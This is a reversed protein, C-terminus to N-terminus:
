WLTVVVGFVDRLEQMTETVLVVDLMSVMRSNSPLVLM